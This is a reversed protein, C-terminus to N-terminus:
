ERGEHVSKLAEVAAHEAAEELTEGRGGCAHQTTTITVLCDGDAKRHGMSWAEIEETALMLLELRQTVTDIM